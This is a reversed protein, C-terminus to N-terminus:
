TAHAWQLDFLQKQTHSYDKSEIIFSYNEGRTAIVAVKDDWIWTTTSLSMDAPLFRVERKWSEGQLAYTPIHELPVSQRLSKHLIGLEIRRKTYEELYERGLLDTIVDLSQIIRHVKDQNAMLTEELIEKVGEVGEYFRMNPRFAESSQYLGYLEPLAKRVQHERHFLMDEIKKPHVAVYYNVGAIESISLLGFKRLRLLHEYVATRKMGAKQAIEPAKARGLALVALYITATTEDLGLIELTSVLSM